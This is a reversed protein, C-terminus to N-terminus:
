HNLRFESGILLAWALQRRGELTSPAAHLHERALQREDPTPRRALITLFLEDVVDEASRARQGTRQAFAHLGRGAFDPGNMLRLAQPVGGEYRLPDLDRDGAFFQAFADRASVGAPMGPTRAPPGLVATLSDYLQQPSLVKISMRGFLEAEVDPHTGPRSTQQYTRSNVIGRCLRKLDFGSAAFQRTLEDLLEPHSPANGSHMDDVPVVIGKGFFHGWLRNVMARAFYPNDPSTMWRALEERLPTRDDGARAAGGPFTPPRSQFGELADADRLTALTLRPDDQVGAMYVQKPRGPTQIQTFFAALGWYDSQKWEAFPHDHCQACSLRIGLFHRSTLDTLDTVGLPNRGEILYTVAPNDEMKGTATLLDHVIGDWGDNRNFRDALWETFRETQIRQPNALSTVLRGRWVDGLHRGFQPSALLEDILRARKDPRDDDLFRAALDASPVVGHLDLCVRRLFEADDAAPARPVGARDLREQIRLDILESLAAVDDGRASGIMLLMWVAASAATLRSM